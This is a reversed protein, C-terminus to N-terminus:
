NSWPFPQAPREGKFIKTGKFKVKGEATVVMGVVNQKAQMNKVVEEYRAQSIFFECGVGCAFGNGTDHLRQGCKPCVQDVLNQWFRDSRRRPM